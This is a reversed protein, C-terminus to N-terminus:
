AVLNRVESSDGYVFMPQSLFDIRRGKAIPRSGLYVEYQSEFYGAWDPRKFHSKDVGM